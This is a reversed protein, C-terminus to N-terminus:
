QRPFYSAQLKALGYASPWIRHAHNCRVGCETRMGHEGNSGVCAVFLYRLREVSTSPLLRSLAGPLSDSVPIIKAIGSRLAVLRSYWEHLTRSVTDLNCNLFGIKRAIPFWAHDLLRSIM